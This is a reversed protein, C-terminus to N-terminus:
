QKKRSAVGGQEDDEEDAGADGTEGAGDAPDEEHNLMPADYDDNIIRKPSASGNGGGGDWGDDINTENVGIADDDDDGSEVMDKSKYLRRKGSSNGNGESREPEEGDREDESDIQDKSKIKRKRSAGESDGGDIGEYEESKARKRRPQTKKERDKKVSTRKRKRGDSSDGDEMGGGMEGDEAEMRERDKKRRRRREKKEEEDVDSEGVDRMEENVKQVRDMVNRRQEEVKREEERRRERAEEEVRERKLREAERKLKAEELKRNKADEFEEQEALRREIQGRLSEGHRVRQEALKRDYNVHEESPVAMLTRFMQKSMELGAIAQRLEQTTRQEVPKDAIMQAYSQQVLAIDYLVAKDTPNVHYAKQTFRLADLMAAPSKETKASMFQAKAMCLLVNADKNDYYKKSVNEYMVVAQRFEGKEVLIHALNVMVSPFNSAAERVQDFTQQAEKLSGTEAIAIAIGNAAYVSTPESKLVRSFSQAAIRYSEQRQLRKDDGKADRAVGLHYNGLAILGYVDNKDCDRVVRELSKKSNRSENMEAQALGIMLWADANKDDTDFVEKYHEIAETIRGLSQEIAGLRLHADIYSPHSAVIRKYIDTAKALNHMEEYLRGLNYTMTWELGRIIEKATSDGEDVLLEECGQLAANYYSEAKTLDGSSHCMAAVNNLIEPNVSEGRNYYVSLADEYSKLSKVPDTEEALQALEIFMGPDDLDFHHEHIINTVKSFLELAKSRNGTQAYLSGLVKLTEVSKPEVALVKEFTQIALETEGKWILMQGLGYQALLHEPDLETIQRYLKFADEFQQMQHHARAMQYASEAKISKDDAAKSAKSAAQMAKAFDRRLFYYNAFQNLVVANKRGVKYAEQMYGRGRTLADAQADEGRTFDKSENFEMIALLILATPDPQTPNTQICRSFARKAEQYMGLKHFCLGIGLRIEPSGGAPQNTLATQYSRLAQKYQKRNYQIRAKGLLAPVCGPRRELVMRFDQFALDFEGRQLRLLGKVIMTPEYQRNISDAENLAQTAETLPQNKEERTAAYRSKKINLTAILTLLPLKARPQERNSQSAAALGTGLIYIADQHRGQKDYELALLRYYQLACGESQFISTLESPDHPLESCDVELVQEEQLPVEITRHVAAM